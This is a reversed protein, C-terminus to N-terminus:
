IPRDRQHRTDTWVVCHILKREHLRLYEPANECATLVCCTSAGRLLSVLRWGDERLTQLGLRPGDEIGDWNEIGFNVYFLLDLSRGLEPPYKGVALKKSETTFRHTPQVGVLM